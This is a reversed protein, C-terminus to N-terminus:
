SLLRYSNAHVRLTTHSHKTRLAHVFHFPCSLLVIAVNQACVFSFFLKQAYFADLFSSIFLPIIQPTHESEWKYIEGWYGILIFKQKISLHHLDISREWECWLITSQRTCIHYLWSRLLRDVNISYINTKKANSQETSSVFHNQRLILVKHINYIWHFRCLSLSSCKENAAKNPYRIILPCSSPICPKSAFIGCGFQKYVVRYQQLYRNIWRFMEKIMFIM